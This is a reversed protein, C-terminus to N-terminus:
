EPQLGLDFRVQVELAIPEPAAWDGSGIGFASRDLVLDGNLRAGAPNVEWAFELPLPRSVGKLSLEGAARYRGPGLSQIDEARYRAEPHRAFDFWEPEALAADVDPLDTALSPVEVRVELSTPAGSGPDAQLRVEFRRFEGPVPSGEWRAEFALRSQAPDNIWSQAWTLGPLCLWAALLWGRM